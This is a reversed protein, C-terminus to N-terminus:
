KFICWFNLAFWVILIGIRVCAWRYWVRQEVIATEGPKEMKEYKQYPFNVIMFGVLCVIALAPLAYEYEGPYRFTDKIYHIMDNTSHSQRRNMLYDSFSFLLYDFTLRGGYVQSQTIVYISVTLIPAFAELIFDLGINQSEMFLLLIMFPALLAIWYCKMTGFAVLVALSSFCFWVSLKGRRKDQYRNCYALICIVAYAIVVMSAGMNDPGSGWVNVLLARIQSTALTYPTKVRDIGIIGLWYLILTMNKVIMEVPILIFGALIDRLIYPIRKEKLLVLPIFAFVSLYKVPNALVFALLFRRYDGEIYQRIGWLMFVLYVADVQGLHFVPLFVFLTSSLFLRMWKIRVADMKLTVAIKVTERECLGWMCVIFLKYWLYAGMSDELSTRFLMSLIRVPIVWITFLMQCLVGYPVVPSWDFLFDMLNGHFLCDLRYYASQFIVLNDWYYMTVFYVVATCVLIMSLVTLRKQDLDCARDADSRQLQRTYKWKM